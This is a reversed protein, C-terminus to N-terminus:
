DDIIKSWNVDGEPISALPLVTGDSKRVASVTYLPALRYHTADAASAPPTVDLIFEGFYATDVTVEDIQYDEDQILPCEGTGDWVTRSVGVDEYRDEDAHYRAWRLELGTFTIKYTFDDDIPWWYSMGMIVPKATPDGTSGYSTPYLTPAAKVTPRVTVTESKSKSEGNLTYNMTVTVLLRDEDDLMYKRGLTAERTLRGSGAVSPTSTYFSPLLESQVEAFSTIDKGDEPEIVYEVSIISSWNVGSARAWYVVDKITLTPDM